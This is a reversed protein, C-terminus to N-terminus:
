SAAGDDNDDKQFGGQAAEDIAEHIGTQNAGEFFKEGDFTPSQIAWNFASLSAASQSSEERYQAVMKELHEGVARIVLRRMRWHPSTTGLCYRRMITTSIDACRYFSRLPYKQTEHTAAILLACQMTAHFGSADPPAESPGKFTKSDAIFLDIEPQTLTM